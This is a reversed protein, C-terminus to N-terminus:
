GSRISGGIISGANLVAGGNQLSIADGPAGLLTGTNYIAIAGSTGAVQTGAIANYGAILAASAASGVVNHVIGGHSLLVGSASTALVTGSNTVGGGSYLEIGHVTGHLTGYNTITGGQAISVAAYNGGILAAANNTVAGALLVVGTGGRIYGSNVVTGAPDATTYRSIAVGVDGFIIASAYNVINGGNQLYIGSAGPGYISGHNLVTWAPLTHPPSGAYLQDFVGSSLLPGFGPSAYVYSSVTFPNPSSATGGFTLTVGGTM